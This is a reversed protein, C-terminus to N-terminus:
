GGYLSDALACLLVIVLILVGSRVARRAVGALEGTGTDLLQDLGDELGTGYAIEGGNERASRELEDVELAEEQAYLVDDEEAAAAPAALCFLAAPLVVMLWTKRMAMGRVVAPGAPGAGGDAAPGRRGPGAGDGGAGGRRGAGGGPRGQLLRR